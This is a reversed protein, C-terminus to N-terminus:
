VFCADDTKTTAQWFVLFLYPTGGCLIISLLISMNRILTIERGINPININTNTSVAIVTSGTDRVRRTSRRARCVLTTYIITVINFPIVFATIIGYMATWIKKTTCTCLRSEEEYIYSGEIFLLTAPIIIGLLWNITIM